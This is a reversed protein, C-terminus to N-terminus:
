MQRIKRYLTKDVIQIHRYVFYVHHDILTTLKVNLSSMTLM